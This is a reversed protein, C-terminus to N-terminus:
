SRNADSLRAEEEILLREISRRRKEDIQGLDRYHSINQRTVFDEPKERGFPIPKRARERALEAFRREADAAVSLAGTYLRGMEGLLM